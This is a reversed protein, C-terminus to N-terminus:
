WGLPASYSRDGIVTVQYLRPEDSGSSRNDASTYIAGLVDDFRLQMGPSMVMDDYGGPYILGGSSSNLFYYNAYTCYANSCSMDYDVTNIQTVSVLPVSTSSVNDVLLCANYIGYFTGVAGATYYAYWDDSVLSQMNTRSCDVAYSSTVLETSLSQAEELSSLRSELDNIQNQLDASQNFLAEIKENQVLIMESYDVCDCVSNTIAAESSESQEINKCSFLAFLSFIM